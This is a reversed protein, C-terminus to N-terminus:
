FRFNYTITPIPQGFISLEYGKIVGNETRFFVSYPNKRGTLNYVAFTWSSHSLKRVRHNGEVNLSFDTRTTTASATGM